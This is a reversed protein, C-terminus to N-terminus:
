PYVVVKDGNLLEEGQLLRSCQQLTALEFTLLVQQVDILQASLAVPNVVRQELVANIM